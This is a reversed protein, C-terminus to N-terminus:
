IDVLNLQRVFAEHQQRSLEKTLGDAAMKPTPIWQITLQNNQVRERLWCQHIDVHRLKTNLRPTDQQLLRITQLNDCLLTVQQETDFSISKFFRRWWTIERATLSLSLLEAETSSMTVINQKVSKWHVPGGFLQFLYGRSSHRTESDDAFAADSSGLFIQQMDM